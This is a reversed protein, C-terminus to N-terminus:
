EFRNVFVRPVNDLQSRQSWAAWVTGAGDIALRPTFAEIYQDPIGIAEVGGWGGEPTYRNGKVQYPPPNVATELEYWAVMANGRRDFAVVPYYVGATNGVLNSVVDPTSWTGSVPDRRSAHVNSSGAASYRWVALAVGQQDIALTALESNGSGPEV